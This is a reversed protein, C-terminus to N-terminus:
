SKTLNDTNEGEPTVCCCLRAHMGTMMEQMRQGWEGGFSYGRESATAVTSIDSEPSWVHAPKTTARVDTRAVILRCRPYLFAPQIAPAQQLQAGPEWWAWDPSWSASKSSRVWGAAVAAKGRRAAHYSRHHPNLFFFFLLKNLKTQKLKPLHSSTFGFNGLMLFISSSPM